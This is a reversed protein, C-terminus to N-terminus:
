SPEGQPQNDIARVAAELAALLTPHASTTHSWEVGTEVYMVTVTAGNFWKQASWAHGREVIWALLDDVTHRPTSPYGWGRHRRAVPVPSEPVSDCAQSKYKSLVGYASEWTYVVGPMPDGPQLDSQEVIRLFHELWDLAVARDEDDTLDGGLASIGAPIRPLAADLQARTM